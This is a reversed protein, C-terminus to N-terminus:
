KLSSSLSLLDRGPTICPSLEGIAAHPQSRAASTSHRWDLRRAPIPTLTPTQFSALVFVQFGRVRSQSMHVSVKRLINSDHCKGKYMQKCRNKYPQSSSCILSRPGDIALTAISRSCQGFKRLSQLSPDRWTFEIESLDPAMEERQACVAEHGSRREEEKSIGWYPCPRRLLAISSDGKPPGLSQHM